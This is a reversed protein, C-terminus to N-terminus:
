LDDILRQRYHKVEAKMSESVNGHMIGDQLIEDYVEIIMKVDEDNSTDIISLALHPNHALIQKWEEVGVTHNEINRNSTVEGVEWAVNNLGM